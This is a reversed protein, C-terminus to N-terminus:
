EIMIKRIVFGSDTIIKIFYIGPKCHALDVKTENSITMDLQRQLRGTVDYLLIREMAVPSAIHLWDSAPNPFISIPIDIPRDDIPVLMDPHHIVLTTMDGVVPIDQFDGSKMKIFRINLHVHATDGPRLGILDDEIIARIKLIRGAGSIPDKGFRTLAGEYRNAHNPSRNQFQFAASDQTFWSDSYDLRIERIFDSDYEVTFALGNVDAITGLAHNELLVPIEVVSSATLLPQGPTFGFSLQPDVGRVGEPFAAPTPNLRRAGYNRHITLFDEFDIIGNGDTDAFAFNTSDQDAFRQEWLLPIAAETFDVDPEGRAPGISGYAYGVYLVDLNNVSGDNNADGPYVQATGLQAVCLLLAVLPLYIPNNAKIM